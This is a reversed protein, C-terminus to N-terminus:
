PEGTPEGEMNLIAKKWIPVKATLEDIIFQCAAFAEARHPAEVRVLLSAEGVPIVGLRHIVRLRQGPWKQKTARIIQEFQNEAMERYASYELAAIPQADERNRVVGWFVVVGGMTPETEANAEGPDIPKDTITCEADVGGQLPPMLSLVDGPRLGADSKAFEMGIALLITKEAQALKPYRAYLLRLADAVTAGAPLEVTTETLGTLQRLFSFFQVRITM